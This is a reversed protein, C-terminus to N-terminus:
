FFYYYYNQFIFLYRFSNKKLHNTIPYLINECIKQLIANPTKEVLIGIEEAKKIDTDIMFSECLPKLILFVDAISLEEM